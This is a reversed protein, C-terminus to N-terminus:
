KATTSYFEHQIMLPFYNIVRLIEMTSHKRLPIYIYKLTVRISFNFQFIKANFYIITKIRSISSISRIFKQFIYNKDKEM